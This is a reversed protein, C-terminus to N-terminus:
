RSRRCKEWLLIAFSAAGIFFGARCFDFASIAESTIPWERRKGYHNETEWGAFWGHSLDLPVRQGRRRGNQPYAVLYVHSYVSPDSADAAVTCFSCPVGRALLHAAGYMSFDDCDGKAKPSVIQDVPRILTEVVPNWHGIDGWPRGTVEDHVFQMQRMGDKRSIWNWVDDIPDGQSLTWSEQKLIPNQSDEFAYQRMLEITQAVQTDPDDSVEKISYRV